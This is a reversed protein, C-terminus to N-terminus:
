DYEDWDHRNTREAFERMVGVLSSLDFNQDLGSLCIGASVVSLDNLRVRSTHTRGDVSYRITATGDGTDWYTDMQAGSHRLAQQMRELDTRPRRAGTREDSVAQPHRDFWIIKYALMEAPVAGSVRVEDPQMEDNLAKRLQRAVAPDRRRNVGHYWFSAGDFRANIQEFSSCREALQLPVPERFQFRTDSPNAQLGWWHHEFEEILVISVSPLLKLYEDIQSRKPLDIVKAKGPDSMQFLGFGGRDKLPGPDVVAMEYVVEKLKVKIKGGPLYPALFTESALTKEQKAFKKILSLPDNGSSADNGSM